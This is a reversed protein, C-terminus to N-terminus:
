TILATCSRLLSGYSVGQNCGACGQGEQGEQGAYGRESLRDVVTVVVGPAVTVVGPVVTVVVAGLEVPAIVMAGSFRVTMRCRKVVALGTCSFSRTVTPM